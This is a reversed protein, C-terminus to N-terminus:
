MAAAIVNGLRSVLVEAFVACMVLKEAAANATVVAPHQGDAVVDETSKQIRVRTDKHLLEVLLTM